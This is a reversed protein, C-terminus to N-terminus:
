PALRSIVWFDKERNYVVRDHLRFKGDQWFEFFDPVLRYGGWHPPKPVPIRNFKTEYYRYSNELYLRDPITSSQQSAWAGVQSERPRISFYSSSEKRTTRMIIGEIRVQRGSEEWYFLLAASPNQSIQAAKRSRYNTFFVFGKEDYDKLLVTRVSVKGEPTATGLSVTGPIGSSTKLHEDYWKRFQVFPNTDVSKESLGRHYKM